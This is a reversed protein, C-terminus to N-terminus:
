EILDAGHCGIFTHEILLIHAELDALFSRREARQLRKELGLEYKVAPIRHLLQYMRHM